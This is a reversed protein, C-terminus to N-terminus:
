DCGCSFAFMTGPVLFVHKIEPDWFDKKSEFTDMYEKNKKNVRDREM